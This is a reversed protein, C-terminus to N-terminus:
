LQRKQRTRVLICPKLPYGKMCGNSVFSPCPLWTRRKRRRSWQRLSLADNVYKPQMIMSTWKWLDRNGAAFSSMDDAWWLGELPLVGYDVAAKGKKIMFKLTYSVSFLAEVADKYDKSTAPDGVGNVMVFNFQPVDVVVVEKPSPNYLNKFEKQFNIKGM